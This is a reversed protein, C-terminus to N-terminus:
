ITESMGPLWGKLEVSEGAELEGRSPERGRAVTGSGAGRGDKKWFGVRYEGSMLRRVYDIASRFVEEDVSDSNGGIHIHHADFGITAREDESSVRFRSGSPAALEVLFTGPEQGDTVHDRFEPFAELLAALFRASFDDLPSM